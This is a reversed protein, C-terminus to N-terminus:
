VGCEIAGVDVAAGVAALTRQRTQAGQMELAMPQATLDQVRSIEAVTSQPVAIQRTKM